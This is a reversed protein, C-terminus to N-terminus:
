EEDEDEDNEDDTYPEPEDDLGHTDEVSDEYDGGQEDFGEIQNNPDAKFDACIRELSTAMSIDKEEKTVADLTTGSLASALEIASTVVEKADRRVPLNMWTLEGAPEETENKLRKVIEKIEAVTKNPADDVLKVMIDSMKEEVLTASDTVTVNPDLSYILTLKTNRAKALKTKSIGLLKSVVSIQILNRVQTKSIDAGSKKIYDDFSEFKWESWYSNQKVEALLDGLEFTSLTLTTDIEGVRKRVEDSRRSDREIIAPPSALDIGVEVVYPEKM